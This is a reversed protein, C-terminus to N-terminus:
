KQEDPAVALNGFGRAATHAVVASNFRFLLGNGLSRITVHGFCFLRLGGSGALLLFDIKQRYGCWGVCQENGAYGARRRHATRQKSRGARGPGGGDRNGREHDERENGVKTAKGAAGAAHRCRLESILMEGKDSTPTAQRAQSPLRLIRIRCGVPMDVRMCICLLTCRM